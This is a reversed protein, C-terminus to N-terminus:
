AGPSGSRSRLSMLSSYANMGTYGTCLNPSQVNSDADQVSTGSDIGASPSDPGGMKVFLACVKLASVAIDTGEAVDIIMIRPGEVAANLVWNNVFGDAAVTPEVCHLGVTLGSDPNHQMDAKIPNKMLRLGWTNALARAQMARLVPDDGFIIISAGGLARVKKDLDVSLHETDYNPGYARIERDSM